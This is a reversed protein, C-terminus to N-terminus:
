APKNNLCSLNYEYCARKKLIKVPYVLPKIFNRYRYPLIKINMLARRRIYAIGEREQDDINVLVDRKELLCSYKEFFTKKEHIDVAGGLVDGILLGKHKFRFLRFEDDLIDSCRFNLFTCVLSNGVIKGVDLFIKKPLFKNYLFKTLIEPNVNSKILLSCGPKMYRIKSSIHDDNFDLEILNGPLKDKYVPINYNYGASMNTTASGGGVYASRSTCGLDEHLNSNTYEIIFDISPFVSKMKWIESAFFIQRALHRRVIVKIFVGLSATCTFKIIPEKSFFITGEPPAETSFIYKLKSLSLIFKESFLQNGTSEKLSYLYNLESNNFVKKNKYRHFFEIGCFILSSDASDSSFSAAFRSKNEHHGNKWLTYVEKIDSLQYFM